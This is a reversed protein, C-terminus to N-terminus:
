LLGDFGSLIKFLEDKQITIGKITVLQGDLLFMKMLEAIVYSQKAKKLNAIYGSRVMQSLTKAKKEDGMTIFANLVYTNEEGKEFLLLISESQRIVEESIGLNLDFFTKPNEAYLAIASQKMREAIEPPLIEEDREMFQQYVAPYDDLTFLIKGNRPSYLELDSEKMQFYSADEHADKKTKSSWMLATNMAVRSYTTEMVGYIRSAELNLPYAEDGPEIVVSIRESRDTLDPLVTQIIGPDGTTVLITQHTPLEEITFAPRKRVTTTACGGLLVVVFLTLIVVKTKKMERRRSSWAFKANRCSSLRVEM